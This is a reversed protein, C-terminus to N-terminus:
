VAVWNKADIFYLGAEKVDEGSTDKWFKRYLEVQPRYYAVLTDLNGDVKDTKYDALVWGGAEKFALDITGSVIIPAEGEEIKLSFPVEVLAREAKKMRSWLESAMVGNVTAVISESESLLREEEKLLNKAMQELDLNEDKALAELMRHIIRGWSTGKGTDESFPMEEPASRVMSTVSEIAYTYTQPVNNFEIVLKRGIEVAGEGTAGARIM